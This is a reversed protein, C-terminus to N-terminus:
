LTLDPKPLQERDQDEALGKSVPCPPWSAATRHGVCCPRLDTADRHGVPGTVGLPPWAETQLVWSGTAPGLTQRAGPGPSPLAGAPVRQRRPRPRQELYLRVESIGVVTGGGRPGRASDLCEGTFEVHTAKTRPALCNRKVRYPGRHYPNTKM